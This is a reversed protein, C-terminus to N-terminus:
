CCSAFRVKETQLPKGTQCVPDEAVPYTQKGQQPQSKTLEEVKAAASYSSRTTVGVALDRHKYFSDFFYFALSFYEIM